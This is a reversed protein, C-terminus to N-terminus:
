CDASKRGPQVDLRALHMHFPDAEIRHSSGYVESLASYLAPDYRRLDESSLVVGDDLRSIVNSNFWFQTGEAWYEQVTVAAYDGKWRGAAIAAAYAKRVRAYLAPDVQEVASLMTHAFEHILLNDGFYRGGEGLVNEAGASVVMGGIGRARVNWFDRDSLPAIRRDYEDRECATLRPDGRAPKKWHSYDPLDMNGEEAAILAVRARGNVLYRRIDPRGNLMSDVTDRAVLLAGDPVRDSGVVPIGRADVYKAYFPHLRLSKPPRKVAGRARAYKSPLM